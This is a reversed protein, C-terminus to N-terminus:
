EGGQTEPGCIGQRPRSYFDMVNPHFIGYCGRLAQVGAYQALSVGAAAAKTLMDAAEATPIEIGIIQNPNESM